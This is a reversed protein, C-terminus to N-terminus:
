NSYHAGIAGDLTSPKPKPREGGVGNGSRGASKSNANTAALRKALADVKDAPVGALLELDKDDTLGHKRAAREVALQAEIAERAKKEADREAEARQKEDLKALREKEKAKDIEALKKEAAKRAAREAELAKKGGEGLKEEDGDGDNTDTDADNGKDAGDDTEGQDVKGGDGDHGEDDRRPHQRNPWRGTTAFPDLGYGAGVILHLATTHRM